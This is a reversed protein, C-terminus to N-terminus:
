ALVCSLMACMLVELWVSVGGEVLNLSPDTCRFELACAQERVSGGDSADHELTGHSDAHCFLSAPESM